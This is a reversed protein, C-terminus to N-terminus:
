EDFRRKMVLGNEAGYFNEVVHVVRFGYDFYLKQAPNKVNVHLRMSNRDHARAWQCVTRLLNGGIGRCQFRPDVAVNWIYPGINDEIAIFGIITPALGFEPYPVWDGYEWVATWVESVDLTSEFTKLDVLDDGEYCREAIERLRARDARKLGPSIRM